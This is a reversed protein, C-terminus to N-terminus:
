SITTLLLFSRSIDKIKWQSKNKKWNWPMKKVNHDIVLANRVPINNHLKQHINLLFFVNRIWRFLTKIKKHLCELIRYFCFPQALSMRDSCVWWTSLFFFGERFLMQQTVVLECLNWAKRFSYVRVINFWLSYHAHFIVSLICQCVMNTPLPSSRFLLVHERPCSM